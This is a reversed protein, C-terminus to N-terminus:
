EFPLFLSWDEEISDVQSPNSVNQSTNQEPDHPTSPGYTDGTGIKELVKKPIEYDFCCKNQRKLGFRIALIANAMKSQM